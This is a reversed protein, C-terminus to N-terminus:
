NFMGVTAKGDTEEDKCSSLLGFASVQGGVCHGLSYHEGTFFMGRSM